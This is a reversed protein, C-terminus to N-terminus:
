QFAIPAGPRPVLHPPLQAAIAPDARDEDGVVLHGEAHNTGHVLRAPADRTIQADDAEVVDGFRRVERRRQRGDALIKVLDSLRPTRSSSLIMWSPSGDSGPSGTAGSSITRALM